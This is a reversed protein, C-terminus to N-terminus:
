SFFIGKTKNLQVSESACRHVLIGPVLPHDEANSDVIYHYVLQLAVVARSCNQQMLDLYRKTDTLVFSAFELLPM